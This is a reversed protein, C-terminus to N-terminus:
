NPHIANGKEERLYKLWAMNKTQYPMANVIDKVARRSLTLYRRRERWQPENVPIRAAQRIVELKKLDGLTMKTVAMTLGPPTILDQWYSLNDVIKGVRELERFTQVPHAKRGFTRIFWRFATYRITGRKNNCLECAAVTNAMEDGGGHAVPTVHDITCMRDSPREGLRPVALTMRCECYHCKGKQAWYLFERRSNAM